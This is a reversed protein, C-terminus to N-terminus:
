LSYIYNDCMFQSVLYTASDLLLIFVSLTIIKISLEFINNGGVWLLIARRILMSNPLYIDQVYKFLIDVPNYKCQLSRVSANLM